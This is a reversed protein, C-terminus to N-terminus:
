KRVRGLKKLKRRADAKAKAPTSGRGAIGSYTGNVIINVTYLGHDRRVVRGFVVSM